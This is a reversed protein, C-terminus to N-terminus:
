RRARRKRDFGRYQDGILGEIWDIAADRQSRRHRLTALDFEPVPLPPPCTALGMEDALMRAVPEPMCAIADVQKLALGVSLFHSGGAIVRRQLGLPALAADIRGSLEGSYTVLLHPLGIFQARKIPVPLALRQADYVCMLRTRLLPTCVVWAPRGEPVGIALDLEDRELMGAVAYTDASRFVLRLGPATGATACLLRPLLTAEYDDPVGLRLTRDIRAPDFGEPDAHAQRITELAPAVREWLAHAAATPELGQRGRVFLPDGWQERLRKLAMSVAPQGLFLVDAARTTSRERMLAGLVVLLNLDLNRFDRTSM